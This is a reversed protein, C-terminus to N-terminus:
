PKLEPTDIMLVPEFAVWRDPHEEDEVHDMTYATWGAMEAKLCIFQQKRSDWIGIPMGRQYTRGLYYKGGVLDKKPIVVESM